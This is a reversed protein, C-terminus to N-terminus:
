KLCEARGGIALVIAGVGMVILGVMGVATGVALVIQFGAYIPLMLLGLWILVASLLAALALLCKSNTGPRRAIKRCHLIGWILLGCVLVQAAIRGMSQGTLSSDNM